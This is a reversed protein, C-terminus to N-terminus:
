TAYCPHTRSPHYGPHHPLHTYRTPTSGRGVRYGKIPIALAWGIGPCHYEPGAPVGPGEQGKRVGAGPVERLM